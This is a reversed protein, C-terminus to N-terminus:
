WPPGGLRPHLLDSRGVLALVYAEPYFFRRGLQRRRPTRGRLDSAITDVSSFAALRYGPYLREVDAVLAALAPRTAGSRQASVTEGSADEFTCVFGYRARSPGSLVQRRGANGQGPVGESQAQQGSVGAAM